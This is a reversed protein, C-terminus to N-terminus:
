CEQQGQKALFLNFGNEDIHGQLLCLLWIYMSYNKKLINLAFSETLSYSQLVKNLMQVELSVSQLVKNLM